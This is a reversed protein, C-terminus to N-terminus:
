NWQRYTQECIVLFNQMKLNSVPMISVTDHYQKHVPLSTLHIICVQLFNCYATAHRRMHWKGPTKTSHLSHCMKNEAVSYQWYSYPWIASQTVSQLICSKPRRHCSVIDSYWQTLSEWHKSCDNTPYLFRLLSGSRQLHLCQSGEFHRCCLTVDWFVQTRESHFHKSQISFKVEIVSNDLVNQATMLQWWGGGGGFGHTSITVLLKIYAEIQVMHWVKKPFGFV